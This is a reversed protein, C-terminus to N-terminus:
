RLIEVLLIWANFIGAGYACLFGAVMVPMGWACGLLILIGAAVLPLTAVLAILARPVVWAWRITGEETRTAKLHSLVGLGAAVFAFGGVATVAVGFGWPELGPVLGIASLFLIQVFFLLSEAARAPLPAYELIKALNISVAVFILGTLAAAAGAQAVFFSEWEKLVEM